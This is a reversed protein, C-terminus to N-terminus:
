PFHAGELWGHETLRDYDEDRYDVELLADDAAWDATHCEAARIAELVARRAEVANRAHTAEHVDLAARYRKWRELLDPPVSGIDVLRPLVVKLELTVKAQDLRCPGRPDGPIFWDIQWETYADFHIGTVPDTSNNRNLSARIESVTRGSVDYYRLKIGPIGALAPPVVAAKVDDVVPRVGAGTAAAILGLGVAIRFRTVLGDM